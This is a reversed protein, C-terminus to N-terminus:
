PPTPVNTSGKVTRSHLIETLARWADREDRALQAVLAGPSPFRKTDRLRTVFEVRVHEGYFEDDAEFLHVELSLDQDGFTPRPGLNMMGGFTGRQTDVIVAYVGTPPLLKRPSPREVNLTPYGLLRGRRAGSVVRGTVAYRRGLADAARDLDGSSLARRISSSSIPEGDSGIVPPVVDVAFGRSAGLARLTEVDGSRGRGFGHDYGILLRRMRYRPRLVVDVFDEATYRALMRTFPLIALHSIGTTALAETREDGPALLRPAAPPNLVELPHPEFSVVLPALAADTAHRVLSALVAHHGRHVGDFTGVTVVTDGLQPLDPTVLDDRACCSDRGGVTATATPSPSSRVTV